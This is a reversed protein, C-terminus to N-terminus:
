SAPALAAAAAVANVPKERPIATARRPPSRSFSRSPAAVSIRPPIASTATASPPTSSIPSVTGATIPKATQPRPMAFATGSSKLAAPRCRDARDTM